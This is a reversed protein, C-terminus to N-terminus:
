HAPAGYTGWRQTGGVRGVITTPQTEKRAAQAQGQMQMAQLLIGYDPYPEQIREVFGAYDGLASAYRQQMLDELKMRAPMAYGKEWRYPTSAATTTGFLGSSILGSQEKAVGRKTQEAIDALQSQQYAGGPRALDVLEGLYGRIEQEREVNSLRTQEYLNQFWDALNSTKPITSTSTSSKAPSETPAAQIFSKVLSKAM